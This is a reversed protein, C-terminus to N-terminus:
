CHKHGDVMISKWLDKCVPSKLSKDLWPKGLGCSTLYM